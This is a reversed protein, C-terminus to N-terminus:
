LPVTTIRGTWSPFECLHTGELGSLASTLLSKRKQKREYASQGLRRLFTYLKKTQKKMFSM